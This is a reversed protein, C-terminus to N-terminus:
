KKLTSIDYHYINNRAETNSDVIMLFAANIIVTIATARWTGGSVVLIVMAALIVIAPIVRFVLSLEGKSKETRQIESQAFANPNIRYEQEFRDIRPNNALFLGAGVLVLFLGAIFFPWTFSRAMPTRGVYWFGLAASLEILSFFLVVKSSFVESKAWDTSLKLIDMEIGKTGV